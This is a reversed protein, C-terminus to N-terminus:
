YYRARYFSEFDYARGENLKVCMTDQWYHAVEHSVLNTEKTGYDRATIFIAATGRPSTISDYVAAINNNNWSHWPLFSMIERNNLMSHDIQYIHLETYKCQRDLDPYFEPLILISGAAESLVKEGREQSNGHYVITRNGASVRSEFTFSTANLLSDYGYKITDAEAPSVIFFLILLAFFKYM